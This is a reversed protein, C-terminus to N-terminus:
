DHDASQQSRVTELFWQELPQGSAGSWESKVLVRQLRNGAVIAVRHAIKEVDSIAHSSFLVTMGLDKNLRTFLERMEVIGLPDLGSAPEDLVLVKPEHLIAQAIGLRQRMGKSFSGARREGHSKLGVIDLVEKIRRAAGHGDRFKGYDLKTFFHLIERATLAQPFAVNEPLYGLESRVYTDYAAEKGLVYVHGKTPRILGLLLRISTTKGCGNLGLLGFIEGAEISCTLDKIGTVFKDKFFGPIRYVKSLEKFEIVSM